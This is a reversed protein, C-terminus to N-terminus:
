FKSPFRADSQKLSLILHFHQSVPSENRLSVYLRLFRNGCCLPISTADFIPLMRFLAFVSAPFFDLYVADGSGQRAAKLGWSPPLTIFYNEFVVASVPKATTERNSFEQREEFLTPSHM